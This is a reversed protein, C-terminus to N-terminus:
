LKVRLQPSPLQAAQLNKKDPWDLESEAAKQHLSALLVVQGLQLHELPRIIRRQHLLGETIYLVQM